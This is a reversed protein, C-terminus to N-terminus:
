DRRWRYAYAAGAREVDGDDFRATVVVWDGDAAVDHGFEAGDQPTPSVLRRTAEMAGPSGEFVHVVGDRSGVEEGDGLPAGVYLTGDSWALSAGFDDDVLPARLTQVPGADLADLDYVLVRGPQAGAGPSGVALWNDEVALADGFQAREAPEPDLVEVCGDFRCVQVAGAQRLADFTGNAGFACGDSVAEVDGGLWHGPETGTASVLLRMAGISLSEARGEEREGSRPAGVCLVGDRAAVSLGYHDGPRGTARGVEAGDALRRGIVGGADDGFADGDQGHAGVWVVGDALDLARGFYPRDDIREPTFLQAFEWRGDVLRFHTVRGAGDVGDDGGTAGIVLNDDEIAVAKGFFRLPVPDTSGLRQQYVLPGRTSADSADADFEGTNASSDADGGDATVVDDDAADEDASDAAGADGRSANSGQTDHAAEVDRPAAVESSSPRSGCAALFACVLTVPCPRPLRLM